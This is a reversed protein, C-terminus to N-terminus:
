GAGPNLQAVTAHESVAHEGRIVVAEETAFTKQDTTTQRGGIGIVAKDQGVIVINALAGRIGTTVITEGESLM